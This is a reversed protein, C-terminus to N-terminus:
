FPFPLSKRRFIKVTAFTLGNIGASPLVFCSSVLELGVQAVYHTRPCGSSYILVIV